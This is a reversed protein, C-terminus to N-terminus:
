RIVFSIWVLGAFLLASLAVKKLEPDFDKPTKTKSVKLLHITHLIGVLVIPVFVLYEKILDFKLVCFAVYAAYAWFFLSYHYKKANESGMNVVLTNKEMEKDNDIDRMNNLNLVATSFAGMTIAPLIMILQFSQTLLYYTGLVGVLGFFIFVFVDGMGSYGYAKKGVTYKIAAAIAGLGLTLFLVFYYNFQGDFAVYLLGIGSVFALISSIIIGTKMQQLSILGSQVAREPGVRNNNDTGKKADGFDNALNSVIQLLLTTSLILGFVLHNIDFDISALATGLIINSFSLPLTRLRFAKIWAQTKSM